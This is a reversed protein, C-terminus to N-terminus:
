ILHQLFELAPTGRIGEGTQYDKKGAASIQWAEVDPYKHRLYYLGREVPADVLKAEVLLIPKLRDLVVFNVEHGQM